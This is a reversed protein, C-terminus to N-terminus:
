LPHTLRAIASSSRRDRVHPTGHSRHVDEALHCVRRHVPAETLSALGGERQRKQCCVELGSHALRAEAQM